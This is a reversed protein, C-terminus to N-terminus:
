HCTEHTVGEELNPRESTNEKYTNKKLRLNTQDQKAEIEQLGVETLLSVM